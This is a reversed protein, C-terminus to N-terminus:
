HQSYIVAIKWVTSNSSRKETSSASLSLHIPSICINQIYFSCIAQFIACNLKHANRETPTGVKVFSKDLKAPHCMNRVIGLLYIMFTFNILFPGHGEVSLSQRAQRSLKASWDLHVSRTCRPPEDSWVILSPYKQLPQFVLEKHIVRWFGHRLPRWLWISSCTFKVLICPAPM